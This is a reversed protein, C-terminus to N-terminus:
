VIQIIDFYCKDDIYWNGSEEIEDVIDDKDQDGYQENVHKKLFDQAELLTLFTEDMLGWGNNYVDYKIGYIAPADTETENIVIECVDDVYVENTDILDKKCEDINFSEEDIKSSEKIYQELCNIAKEKAKEKDFGNFVVGFDNGCERVLVAYIKIKM